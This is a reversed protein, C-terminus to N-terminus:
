TKLKVLYESWSVLKSVAILTVLGLREGDNFIPPKLTLLSETISFYALKLQKDITFKLEM